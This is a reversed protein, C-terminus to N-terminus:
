FLLDESDSLRMAPVVCIVSPTKKLFHPVDKEEKEEAM